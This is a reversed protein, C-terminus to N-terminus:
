NLLLTEVYSKQWGILIHQSLITAMLSLRTAYSTSMTSTDVSTIHTLIKGGFQFKRCTPDKQQYGLCREVRWNPSSSFDSFKMELLVLFLYLQVEQPTIEIKTINIPVIKSYGGIGWNFTKHFVNLCIGYSWDLVFKLLLYLPLSPVESTTSPCTM